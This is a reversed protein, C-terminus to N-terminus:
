FTSPRPRGHWQFVRLEDHSQEEGSGSEGDRRQGKGAGGGGFLPGHGVLHVAMADDIFVAPELRKFALTLLNAGPGGRLVVVGSGNEIPM